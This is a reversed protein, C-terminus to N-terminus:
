RRKSSHFRRRSATSRTTPAALTVVAALLDRHGAPLHKATWELAAEYAARGGRPARRRGFPGSPTSLWRRCGPQRRALAAPYMELSQLQFPEAEAPGAATGAHSRSIRCSLAVDPHDGPFLRQCMELSKRQDSRGGCLTQTCAARQGSQEPVDGIPTTARQLTARAHRPVARAAGRGGERGIRPPGQRPQGPEEGHSTTDRLELRRYMEMAEILHPGAEATRGQELVRHGVAHPQGRYGPQRGSLSPPADGAGAVCLPEAEAPRNQDLRLDALRTLSDAVASTTARLSRAKADGASPHLLPEAEAFRGQM